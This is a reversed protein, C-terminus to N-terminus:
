PDYDVKMTLMVLSAIQYFSQRYGKKKGHQRVQVIAVAVLVVNEVGAIFLMPAIISTANM